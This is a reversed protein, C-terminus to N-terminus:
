CHAQSPHTMCIYSHDHCLLCVSLKELREVVDVRRQKFEEPPEENHFSAYLDMLYDVMNTKKVLEIKTKEIEAEPYIKQLSLFELLPFVLHKDLNKALVATLDYSAM